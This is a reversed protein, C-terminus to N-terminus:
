LQYRAAGPEHLVLDRFYVITLGDSGGM